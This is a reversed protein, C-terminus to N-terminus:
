TKGTFSKGCKRCVIKVKGHGRPVRLSTRCSPCAFFKYDKRQIWREHMLKVEGIVKYRIRLYKGNEERRKYLNKSLMRFYALGLLALVLIHIIQAGKPLLSSVVLLILDVALIFMNLKDNGNRGYMFRIFKEKM